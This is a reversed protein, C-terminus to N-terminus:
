YRWLELVRTIRQAEHVEVLASLPQAFVIRVNGGRSEGADLPNAALMADIEHAAENIRQLSRDALWISTLSREAAEEWVVTWMM